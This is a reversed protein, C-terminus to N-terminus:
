KSPDLGLARLRVEHKKLIDRFVEQAWKTGAAQGEAMVKPMLQLSKKGLPTEYFQRLQELETLDFTAAWIEIIQNNLEGMRLKMEPMIIENVIAKADAKPNQRTVAGEIQGAMTDFMQSMMNESGLTRSLTIAAARVEDSIVPGAAQANTTLFLLIALLLRRM